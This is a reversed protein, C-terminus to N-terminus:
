NLDKFFGTQEDKLEKVVGSENSERGFVTYRLYIFKEIVVM